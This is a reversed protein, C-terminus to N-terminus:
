KGTEKSAITKEYVYLSNVPAPKQSTKKTVWQTQNILFTQLSLWKM